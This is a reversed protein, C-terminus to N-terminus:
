FEGQKVEGRGRFLVGIVPYVRCHKRQAMFPGGGAAMNISELILSRGSQIVRKCFWGEKEEGLDPFIHVISIMGQHTISTTKGIEPLAIVCQGNLVVPAMSDGVVEVCFAEDPIVVSDIPENEQVLDSRSEGDGDAAARILIDMQRCRIGEDGDDWLDPVSVGLAHAIKLQNEENPDRKGTEYQSWQVQNIGAKKSADLATNFREKRIRTMNEPFVKRVRDRIDVM